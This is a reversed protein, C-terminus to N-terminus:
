STLFEFFTMCVGKIFITIHQVSFIIILISFCLRLFFQIYTRIFVQIKRMDDQEDLWKDSFIIQVQHCKVILIDHCQMKYIEFSFGVEDYYCLM